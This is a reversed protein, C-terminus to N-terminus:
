VRWRPSGPDGERPGIKAKAWATCRIQPLEGTRLAPVQVMSFDGILDAFQEAQARIRFPKTLPVHDRNRVDWGHRGLEICHRNDRVKKSLMSLEKSFQRMLENDKAALAGVWMKFLAFGIAAQPDKKQLEMEAATLQQLYELKEAGPTVRFVEISRFRAVFDTSALNISHGLVMQVAEPARRATSTVYEFDQRLGAREPHERKKSGFM